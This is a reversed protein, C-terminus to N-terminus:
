LSQKCVPKHIENHVKSSWLSTRLMWPFTIHFWSYLGVEMWTAKGARASRVNSTNAMLTRKARAPSANM